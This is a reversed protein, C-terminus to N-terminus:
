YQRISNGWKLEWFTIDKTSLTATVAVKSYFLMPDDIIHWEPQEVAHKMVWQGKESQEWNWLEKSAFLETDEEKIDIWHVVIQRYNVVKNDIIQFKNRGDVFGSNFKRRLMTTYGAM